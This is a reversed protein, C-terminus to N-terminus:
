FSRTVNRLFNQFFQPNVGLERQVVGRNTDLPFFSEAHSPSKQVMDPTGDTVDMGLLREERLITLNIRGIQHLAVQTVTPQDSGDGGDSFIRFRHLLDKHGLLVIFNWM